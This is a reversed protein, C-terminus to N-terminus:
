AGFQKLVLPPVAESDRSLGHLGIGVARGLGGDMAARDLEGDDARAAKHPRRWPLAHPPGRDVRRVHQLRARLWAGGGSFRAVRLRVAAATAAAPAVPAALNAAPAAVSAPAAAAATAAASATGAVAAASAASPAVAVADTGAVAATAVTIAAAAITTGGRGVM